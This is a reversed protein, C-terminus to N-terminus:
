RFSSSGSRTWSRACRAPAPTSRPSTAAVTVQETVAGPKMVMNVHRNEDVQMQVHEQVFTQFGALEGKVLYIGVPLQTIAYSGDAASITERTVGTQTNIATITAGAIVGGTADTVTGFLTVFGQADARAPALAYSLAVVLIIPRM